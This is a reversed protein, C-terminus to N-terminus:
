GMWFGPPSITILFACTTLGDSAMRGHHEGPGMFNASQVVALDMADQISGRPEYSTIAVGKRPSPM